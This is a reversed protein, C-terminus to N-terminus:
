TPCHYSVDLKYFKRPVTTVDVIFFRVFKGSLLINSSTSCQIMVGSVTSKVSHQGSELM